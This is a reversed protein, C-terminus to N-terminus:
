EEEGWEIDQLKVVLSGELGCLDCVFLLKAKTDGPELDEDLFVDVIEHSGSESEECYSM